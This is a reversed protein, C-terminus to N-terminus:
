NSIDSSGGKIARLVEPDTIETEWTNRRGPKKEDQATLTEEVAPIIGFHLELFDVLDINKAPPETDLQPFLTKWNERAALLIKGITLPKEQVNLIEAIKKGTGGQLFERFRASEGTNKMPTEINDM